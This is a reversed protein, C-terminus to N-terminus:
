SNAQRLFSSIWSVTWNSFYYRKMTAFPLHHPVTDFAKQFDLYITNVSNGQDIFRSLHEMILLLETIFSRNSRFGHQHNSMLINNIFHAAMKDRNISQLLMYVVSTLSVPRYNCPDSRHVKEFSPVVNGEMLATPITSSYLSDNSITSLPVIVAHVVERLM